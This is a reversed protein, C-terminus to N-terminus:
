KSPLCVFIPALKIIYWSSVRILDADRMQENKVQLLILSNANTRVIRTPM